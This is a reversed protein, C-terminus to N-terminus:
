SFVRNKNEIRPIFFYDGYAADAVHLKFVWLEFQPKIIDNM